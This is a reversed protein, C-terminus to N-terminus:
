RRPIWYELSLLCQDVSRTLSRFSFLSIIVQSFM